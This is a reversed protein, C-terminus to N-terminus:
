TSAARPSHRRILDDFAETEGRQARAVLESDPPQPPADEAMLERTRSM